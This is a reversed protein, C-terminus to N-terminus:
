PDFYQQMPAPPQQNWQQHNQPLQQYYGAIAASQGPMPAPQNNAQLLQNQFQHSDMMSQRRYSGQSTNM